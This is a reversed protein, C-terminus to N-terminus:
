TVDACGPKIRMTDKRRGEMSLSVPRAVSRSHLPDFDLFQLLCCATLWDGAAKQAM